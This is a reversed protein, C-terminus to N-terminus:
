VPREPPMPELARRRSIKGALRAIQSWNDRALFGAPGGSSQGRMANRAQGRRKRTVDIPPRYNVPVTSEWSRRHLGPKALIPLCWSVLEKLKSRPRLQGLVQREVLMRWAQYKGVSVLSWFSNRPESRRSDAASGTISRCPVFFGPMAPNKRRAAIRAWLPLPTPVAICPAPWTERVM